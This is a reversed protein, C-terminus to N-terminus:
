RHREDETDDMTKMLERYVIHMCCDRFEDEIISQTNRRHCVITCRRTITHTKGCEDKLLADDLWRVINTDIWYQCDNGNVTMKGDTEDIKWNQRSIGHQM